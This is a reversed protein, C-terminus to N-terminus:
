RLKRYDDRAWLGKNEERATRELKLFYESYKVNPAITLLQGFGEELIRANVFTGDDLYVYALLRGYKDRKDVDFELRVKKGLALKKTFRSAERGLSQIKTIDSVSRRADRLLKDSYYTEPTDIGALRVREGNSLKLTDGDVVRTVYLAEEKLPTAGQPSKAPAIARIALYLFAAILLAAIQIYKFEKRTKRAM